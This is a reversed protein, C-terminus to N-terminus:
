EPVGLSYKWGQTAPEIDSTKLLGADMANRYIRWSAPSVILRVGRHIREPNQGTDLASGKREREKRGKKGEEWFSSVRTGKGQVKNM